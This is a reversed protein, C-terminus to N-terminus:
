EEEDGFQAVSVAAAAAVSAPWKSSCILLMCLVTPPQQCEQVCQHLCMQQQQEGGVVFHPIQLMPMPVSNMGSFLSFCVGLSQLSLPPIGDKVAKSELTNCSCSPLPSLLIQCLKTPPNPTMEITLPLSLWNECLCPCTELHAAVM